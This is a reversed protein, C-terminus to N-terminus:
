LHCDAYRRFNCRGREDFYRRIFLKTYDYRREEKNKRIEKIKLPLKKRNIVRVPLVDKYIDKLIQKNCRSGRETNLALQLVNHSLFPCRLEITQSMCCVDLKPLHYQVLEDYIDSYQSDYDLNRKYGGFLEDAGDGSLLVHIGEKKVVKAMAIQPKVSGLDVPTDMVDQAEEDTVNDLSVRVVNREPIKLLNFYSSEGNEVHFVKINNKYSQAHHNIISSDLGGSCL